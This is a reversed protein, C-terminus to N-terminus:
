FYSYISFVYYSNKFNDNISHLLNYKYYINNYINYINNDNIMYPNIKSYELRTKINLKFLTNYNQSYFKYM